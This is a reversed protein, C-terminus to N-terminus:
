MINNNNYIKDVKSSNGPLTRFRPKPTMHIITEPMKRGYKSFRLIESIVLVNVIIRSLIFIGSVLKHILPPLILSVLVPPGSTIIYIISVAYREYSLRYQGGALSISSSTLAQVGSLDCNMLLRVSSLMSVLSVSSCEWKNYGM